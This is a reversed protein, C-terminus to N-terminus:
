SIRTEKSNKKKPKNKPPITKPHTILQSPPFLHHIILVSPRLPQVLMLIHINLLKSFENKIGLKSRAVRTIVITGISVKFFAGNAEQNTKEGKQKKKQMISIPFTKPMHKKQTMSIFGTRISSLM